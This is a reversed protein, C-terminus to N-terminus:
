LRVRQLKSRTHVANNAVADKCYARRPKRRPGHHELQKPKWMKNFNVLLTASKDPANNESPCGAKAAKTGFKIRRRTEAKADDEDKEDDEDGKADGAQLQGAKQFM